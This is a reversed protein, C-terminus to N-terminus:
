KSDAIRKADGTLELVHLGTNARDVAYLYTGREDVEVNDTHVIPGISNEYNDPAPARTKDTAPPIYFGVEVPSFPNRIDVTRVGGAFYALFLLKHYYLPSFSAQPAHPGFVGRHCFNLGYGHAPAQFTSVPFPHEIDTIDVFFTMHRVARCEFNIGESTVVLFDRVAGQKDEEYDPIPVGLIPKASHAGWFTPMDLRSIQPYLLNADTPAFPDAVAPNGHLFKDRDLIQIAGNQNTGYALYIRDGLVTAEHIGTGGETGRTGGPQMGPLAFDRIHRPHAPDSLDFAQLIQNAQWGEKSSVLYAIGSKCDWFNKHTRPTGSV